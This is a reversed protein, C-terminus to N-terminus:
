KAPSPVPKAYRSGSPLADLKKPAPAPPPNGALTEARQLIEDALKTKGIKKLCMGFNHVAAADDPRILVMTEFCKMAHLIKGMKLFGRANRELRDMREVIFLDNPNRKAARALMDVANTTAAKDHSAETLMAGQVALRRVVQMSRMDAWIGNAIDADVGDPSIWDVVPIEKTLFHEPRVTGAGNKQGFAPAFDRAAGVYNAFMEPITGCKARALDDFAQERTFLELMASLKLQRPANCGVLLWRDQGPMWLHVDYLEFDSMRAHLEDLSVGRVDMFWAVVGKPALLGRLAACSSKSMRRCDTVILDFKGDLVTHCKTGAHSLYPMMAKAGEGILLTRAADPKEMMAIYAAAIRVPECVYDDRQPEEKKSCGALALAVALVVVFRKM